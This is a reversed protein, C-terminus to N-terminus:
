DNCLHLLLIDITDNVLNLQQPTLGKLRDSLSDVIAIENTELDEKLLYGPSTNLANCIQIFVPLSPLKTGGEIQRVFVANLDCLESLKESTIGQKKRAQNIQKGFAKKNVNEGRNYAFLINVYAKLM